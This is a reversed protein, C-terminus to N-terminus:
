VPELGTRLVLHTTNRMRTFAHAIVIERCLETPLAGPEYGPPRHNLDVQQMWVLTAVTSMELSPRQTLVPKLSQPAGSSTVPLACRPSQGLPRLCRSALGDDRLPHAPEIGADDAM